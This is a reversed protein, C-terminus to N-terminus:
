PGAVWPKVNPTGCAACKIRVAIGEYEEDEESLSRFPEREFRSADALLLDASAARAVKERVWSSVSVQAIAAAARVASLEAPTLRAVLTETKRM